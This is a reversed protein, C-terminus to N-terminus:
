LCLLCFRSTEPREYTQLRILLFIPFVALVVVGETHVIAAYGVLLGAILPM